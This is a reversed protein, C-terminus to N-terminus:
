PRTISYVACQRAETVSLVWGNVIVTRGTEFDSRIRQELWPGLSSKEASGSISKGTDDTLLLPVLQTEGAENPVQKRYITGIEFVEGEECIGALFQPQSLASNLDSTRNRCSVGLSIVSVGSILIFTRRKM